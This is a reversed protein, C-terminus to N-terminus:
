TMVFQLVRDYIKIFSSGESSDLERIFESKWILNDGNIM